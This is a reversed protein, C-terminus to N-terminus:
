CAPHPNVYHKQHRVALIINSVTPYPLYDYAVIIITSTMPNQYDPPEPSSLYQVNKTGSAAPVPLEVKSLITSGNKNLMRCMKNLVVKQQHQTALPPTTANRINYIIFM